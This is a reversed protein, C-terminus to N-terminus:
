VTHKTEAPELGQCKVICYFFYETWLHYGKCINKLIYMNRPKISQM